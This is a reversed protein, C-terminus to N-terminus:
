LQSSKLWCALDKNIHKAPKILTLYPPHHPVVRTSFHLHYPAYTSSLSFAFTYLLFCLAYLLHTKTGKTEKIELVSLSGKPSM